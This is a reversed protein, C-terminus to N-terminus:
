QHIHTDCVAKSFRLLSTEAPSFNYNGWVPFLFCDFHIHDLWLEQADSKNIKKVILLLRGQLNEMIHKSVPKFWKNKSTM